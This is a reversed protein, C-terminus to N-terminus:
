VQRLVAVVKGRIIADDGQIPTYAPNHPMLWVRRKVRKYMKVTGEVEIGDLLAAVIDGNKPKGFLERVVVWDGSFIGAGTMSDGVVKLIFLGEEAGVVERPLPFREHDPGLPPIPNGGAIQGVIPVWVVKHSDTDEPAPGAAPPTDGPTTGTEDAPGAAREDPLVRVTRPFRPDYTVLGAAKLQKLHHNVSSPSKLGVAQAIERNSPSCRNAEVYEQIARFVKRRRWPLVKGSAPGSAEASDAGNMM